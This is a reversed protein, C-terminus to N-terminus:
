TRVLDFSTDARARGAADDDAEAPSPLPLSAPTEGRPWLLIVRDGDAVECERAPHTHVFSGEEQGGWM